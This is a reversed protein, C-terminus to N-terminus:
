VSIKYASSFSWGMVLELDTCYETGKKFTYILLNPRGVVIINTMRTDSNDFKRIIHIHALDHIVM